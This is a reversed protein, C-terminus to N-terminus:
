KKSDGESVSGNEIRVMRSQPLGESRRFLLYLGASLVSEKDVLEFGDVRSQNYNLKYGEM